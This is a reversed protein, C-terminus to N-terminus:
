TFQAQSQPQPGIQLQLSLHHSRQYFTKSLHLTKEEDALDTTVEAKLFPKFTFYWVESIM